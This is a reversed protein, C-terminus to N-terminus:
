ASGSTDPSPTDAPTRPETPAPSESPSPWVGITDATSLPPLDHVRRMLRYALVGIANRLQASPPSHQGFFKEALDSFDPFAMLTPLLERIRDIHPSRALDGAGLGHAMENRIKRVLHLARCFPTDIIGLRYAASIRASFTSLPRDSDLLDDEATAVPLLRVRILQGLLM